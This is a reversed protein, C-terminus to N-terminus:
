NCELCAPAHPRCRQCTLMHNCPSNLICSLNEDCIICMRKKVFISKKPLFDENKLKYERYLTRMHKFILSICIIAGIVFGSLLMSKKLLMKQLYQFMRDLNSAM